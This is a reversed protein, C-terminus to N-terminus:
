TASWSRSAKRAPAGFYFRRLLPVREAEGRAIEDLAEEMQATFDYDILHEFHQELLTVVAFALFAPVLATGKKFVYCRDLITGMISAYPSPRGIARDELEKILSAGTYRAPPRTAHEAPALSEAVLPEAEALAPLRRQNDDLEANPDLVGTHFVWAVRMQAANSPNIQDADQFRTNALDHGYQPWDLNKTDEALAPASAICLIAGLAVVAKM